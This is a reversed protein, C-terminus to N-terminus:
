GTRLWFTVDVVLLFAGQVVVAAGFGKLRAPRRTLLAVGALVYLVDLGASVKLLTALDAPPPAVLGYWAIGGDIVAWLGNMVLFARGWEGPPRVTAATLAALWLLAWAFLVAVLQGLLTDFAAM